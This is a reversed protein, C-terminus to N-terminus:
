AHPTTQIVWKGNERWCVLHLTEHMEVDSDDVCIYNTMPKFLLSQALQRVTILNKRYHNKPTKKKKM